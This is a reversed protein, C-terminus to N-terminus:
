VEADLGHIRGARAKVGGQLFRGTLAVSAAVEFELDPLGRIAFKGDEEM